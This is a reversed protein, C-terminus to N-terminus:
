MQTSLPPQNTADQHGGPLPPPWPLQPLPGKSWAISGGGEEEGLDGAYEAPPFALRVTLSEADPPGWDQHWELANRPPTGPLATFM